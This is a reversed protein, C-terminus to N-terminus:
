GIRYLTDSISLPGTIHELNYHHKYYFLIFDLGQLKDSEDWESLVRSEEGEEAWQDQQLLIEHTQAIDSKLKKGKRQSPIESSKLSLLSESLELGLGASRKPAFAGAWHWRSPLSLYSLFANSWCCPHLHEGADSLSMEQKGGGFPCLLGVLEATM